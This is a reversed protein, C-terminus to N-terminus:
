SGAAASVCMSVGARMHRAPTPCPLTPLLWTALHGEPLGDHAEDQWIVRRAVRDADKASM